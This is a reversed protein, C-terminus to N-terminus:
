RRSRYLVIGVHVFTFILFNEVLIGHIQLQKPCIIKEVCSVTEHCPRGEKWM